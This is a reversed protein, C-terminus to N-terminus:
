ELRGAAHSSPPPLRAYLGGFCGHPRLQSEVPAFWSHRCQQSLTGGEANTLLAQLSLCVSCRWGSVEHLQKCAQLAAAAIAPKRGGQHVGDAWAVPSNNPLFVRTRFAHLGIQEASGARCPCPLCAPPGLASCCDNVPLVLFCPAPRYTGVRWAWCGLLATQHARSLHQSASPFRWYWGAM